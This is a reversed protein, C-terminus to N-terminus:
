LVVHSIPVFFHQQWELSTPSSWQPNTARWGLTPPRVPSSSMTDFPIVNDHGRVNGSALQGEPSSDCHTDQNSRHACPHSRRAHLFVKTPHSPIQHFRNEFTDQVSQTLHLAGPIPFFFTNFINITSSMLAPQRTSGQAWLTCRSKPM